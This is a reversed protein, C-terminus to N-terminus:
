GSYSVSTLYKDRASVAEDITRYATGVIFYSGNQYITVKFSKRHQYVYKPLKHKTRHFNNRNCLNKTRTVFRCNSPYYGCENKIRDIELVDRWGNSLAWLIFTEANNKWEDCVSIGKGGYYSYYRHKPNYCRKKMGAWVGYLPHNSFGHKYMFFGRKRPTTLKARRSRRTNRKSTSARPRRTPSLLTLRRPWPLPCM